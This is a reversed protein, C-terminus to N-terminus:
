SSASRRRVFDDCHEGDARGLRVATPAERRERGAPELGIEIKDSASLPPGNSCRDTALAARCVTRSRWRRLYANSFRRLVGARRSMPVGSIVHGEIAKVLLQIRVRHRAEEETLRVRKLYSQFQDVTTFDGFKIHRFEMAVRGSGVHVAMRKAEASIEVEELLQRLSEDGIPVGDAAKTVRREARVQSKRKSFQKMSLWGAREPIGKVVAVYGAAPGIAAGAEGVCVCGMGAVGILCIIWARTIGHRRVVRGKCDPKSRRM